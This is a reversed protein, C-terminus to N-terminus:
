VSMILHMLKCHYNVLSRCKEVTLIRIYHVAMKPQITVTVIAVTPIPFSLSVPCFRPQSKRKILPHAGAHWEIV